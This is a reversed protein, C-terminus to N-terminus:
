RSPRIAWRESEVSSAEEQAYHQRSKDLLRHAREKQAYTQRYEEECM